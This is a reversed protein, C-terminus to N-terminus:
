TFERRRSAAFQAILTAIAGDATRGAGEPHSRTRGPEVPRNWDDSAGGLWVAGLVGLASRLRRLFRADTRLAPQAPATCSFRHALIGTDPPPTTAFSSPTRVPTAVLLWSVRVCEPGSCWLRGSLRSSASTEVRPRAVSRGLAHAFARAAGAISGPDPRNLAQSSTDYPRDFHVRRQQHRSPEPKVRGRPVPLSLYM